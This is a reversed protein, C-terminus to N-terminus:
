KGGKKNITTKLKPPSTGAALATMTMAAQASDDNGDCSGIYEKKEREHATKKVTAGKETVNSGECDDYGQVIVHADYRTHIKCQIPLSLHTM